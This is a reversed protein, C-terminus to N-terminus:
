IAGAWGMVNEGYGIVAVEVYQLGRWIRWIGRM